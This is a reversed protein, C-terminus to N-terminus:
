RPFYDLKVLMNKLQTPEVVLWVYDKRFRAHQFSLHVDAIPTPTLLYNELCKVSPFAMHVSHFITTTRTAGVPHWRLHHILSPLGQFGRLENFELKPIITYNYYQKLSNGINTEPKSVHVTHTDYKWMCIYIYNVSKSPPNQESSKSQEWTGLNSRETWGLNSGQAIARSQASINFSLGQTQRSKWLPIQENQGIVGNAM